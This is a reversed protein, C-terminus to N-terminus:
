VFIKLVKEISEVLKLVDNEDNYLHFSVRNTAKEGLAKMIPKACHHGARICIKDAALISAIDHPHAGEITFSVISSWDEEDDTGLLKIRSCGALKERTLKVLKKDNELINNFGIMELYKIAASLGALAAVDPTGAEFKAPYDMWTPGNRGEIELVMGGGTMFVEMKELCDKKAYLFGSGMPALLKHGTVLVFDAETKKVDFGLHSIGQAADVVVKAGVGHAIEIVRDLDTRNGLVNSMQTVAVIRTKEDVLEAMQRLDLNGSQEEIRVVRFEAGRRQCVQWWPLYNSHHELETVVVNDGPQIFKEYGYAVLNAAETANKVFVIESVEANVLRACSERAEEFIRDAKEALSYVGRHVNANSQTYFDQVAQLVVAPKQSTAANDLYVLDKIQGFIPFDQKIKERIAM